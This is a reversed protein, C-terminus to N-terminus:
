ETRWIRSVGNQMKAVFKKPQYRLCASQASTYAYHPKDRNPFEFSDGVEMEAYPFNQRPGNSPMPVNKSITIENSSAVQLKRM